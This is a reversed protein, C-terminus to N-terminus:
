ETEEIHKFCLLYTISDSGSEIKLLSLKDVTNIVSIIIFETSIKNLIDLLYKCDINGTFNLDPESLWEIKVSDIGSKKLSNVVLESANTSLSVTNYENSNVFLRIKDLLRVLLVKSLKFSISTEYNVFTDSHKIPYKNFEDVYLGIILIGSSKMFLGNESIGYSVSRDIFLQMLDFLKPPILYSENFISEKVYCLRRGDTSMSAHTSFCYNQLIPKSVDVSIASDLVSLCTNLSKTDIDFYEVPEEFEDLVVPMGNEDLALEFKYEAKNSTVVVCEDNKTIEIYESDLKSILKCFQEQNVVAYFDHISTIKTNVIIHNDLDTAHLYIGSDEVFKIGLFNSVPCHKNILSAKSIKTVLNKVIELNLKM